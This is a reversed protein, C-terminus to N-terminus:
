TDVLIVSPHLRSPVKIVTGVLHLLQVLLVCHLRSRGWLAGSKHHVGDQRCDEGGASDGGEGDGEGSNGDRRDGEDGEGESSGGKRWSPALLRTLWSLLKSSPMREIVGLSM